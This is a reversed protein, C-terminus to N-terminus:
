PEEGPAAAPQQSGEVVLRMAQEIPIRVIRHARDVWGFQHLEQEQRARESPRAGPIDFPEQLVESVRERVRLSREGFDRSPRLEDERGRLLLYAGVILLAGMLVTFVLAGTVLPASVAERGDREGPTATPPSM